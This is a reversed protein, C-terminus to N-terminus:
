YGSRKSDPKSDYPNYAGDQDNDRRGYSANSKNTAGTGASYEDRQHGGNTQSNYNNSRSSDPSSRTYGQVYTGDSRTHGNVHTDALAATSTLIAALIVLRKM